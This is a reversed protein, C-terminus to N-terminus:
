KVSARVTPLRSLNNDETGDPISKLYETGRRHAIGVGAIEGARALAVGEEKDVIRMDSLQYGTIKGRQKVVGTIEKANASPEPIDDLTNIAFSIGTTEKNEM